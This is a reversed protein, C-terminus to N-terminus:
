EASKVDPIKKGPIASLNRFIGGRFWSDPRIRCELTDVPSFCLM